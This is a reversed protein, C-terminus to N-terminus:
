ENNTLTRLREQVTQLIETEKGFQSALELAIKYHSVAEDANKVEDYIQGLLVHGLFPDGGHELYAFLNNTAKQYEKEEAHALAMSFFINELSVPRNKENLSVSLNKLAQKWEGKELYAIGLGYHGVRDRNLALQFANISKPIAEDALYCEGLKYYAPVEPAGRLLYYIVQAINTLGVLLAHEGIIDLWRHLYPILVAGFAFFSVILISPFILHTPSLNLVLGLIHVVILIVTTTLMWILARQQLQKHQEM